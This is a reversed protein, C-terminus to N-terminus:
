AGWLPSVRCRRRLEDVLHNHAVRFLWASPKEPVANRSWSEVAGLLARQVADEVLELCHMGVRRSLLAVLRGYEHRFFNDGFPAKM